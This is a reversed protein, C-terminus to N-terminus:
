GVTLHAEDHTASRSGAADCLSCFLLLGPFFNWQSIDEVLAPRNNGDLGLKFVGEDVKWQSVRDFAVTEPPMNAKRAIELGQQNIALRETWEVRGSKELETALHRAVVTAVDDQFEQLQQYKLTDFMASSDYHLLPANPDRSQLAFRVMTTQYVGNRHVDTWKARFAVLDDFAITQENEGCVRQVADATQRLLVPKGFHFYVAALAAVTILLVGGAAYLLNPQDNSAAKFLYVAGVLGAGAIGGMVYQVYMRTDRFERWSPLPDASM